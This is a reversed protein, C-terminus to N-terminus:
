ATPKTPTNLDRLRQDLAFLVKTLWGHENRVLSYPSSPITVGAALTYREVYDLILTTRSDLGGDGRPFSELRNIEKGSRGAFKAWILAIRAALRQAHERKAGGDVGGFGQRELALYEQQLRQLTEWLAQWYRRESEEAKEQKKELAARAHAVAQEALWVTWRQYADTLNKLAGGIRNLVGYFLMIGIVALAVAVYNEM